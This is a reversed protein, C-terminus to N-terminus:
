FYVNLAKNLWSLDHIHTTKQNGWDSLQLDQLVSWVCLRIKCKGVQSPWQCAELLLEPVATNRFVKHHSREKTWVFSCKVRLLFPLCNEYSLHRFTVESFLITQSPTWQLTIVSFSSAGGKHGLWPWSKSGSVDILVPDSQGWAMMALIEWDWNWWM